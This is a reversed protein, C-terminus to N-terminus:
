WRRRLRQCKKTSNDLHKLCLHLQELLFGDHSIVIKAFFGIVVQKDRDRKILGPLLVEETFESM